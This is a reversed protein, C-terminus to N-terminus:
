HARVGDSATAPISRALLPALPVLGLALALVVPAGV